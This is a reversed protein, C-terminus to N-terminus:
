GGCAPPVPGGHFMFDVLYVLDGIDVIDVGNVNAEEMCIPQPGGSFMWDSLYTLDSIDAPVAGGSHNVDGRNICCASPLLLTEVLQRASQHEMYWLHFGFLYTEYSLRATKIGIPEGEMLSSGPSSSRFRYVVEADVTPLFTMPGPATNSPWFSTLPGSGFPYRLSDYRLVPLTGSSDEVTVLGFTTDVLPLGNIMFHAIGSFFISDLGFFDRLIFDNAVLHASDGIMPQGVIPKFGGFYVTTGGFLLYKHLAITQAKNEFEMIIDTLDDDIIVLKYHALDRWNIANEPGYKFSSDRASYIDYAYAPGIGGLLSDYFAKITDYQVFQIFGRTVVVVEKDPPDAILVEVMSFESRFGAKNVAEVYYVNGENAMDTFSTVGSDTTAHADMEYYYFYCDGTWISDKPTLEGASLVSMDTEDYFPHYPIPSFIIASDFKYINYHDIDEASTENWSITVPQSTQAYVYPIDFSPASFYLRRQLFVPDGIDGLGTSTQHAVNVFYIKNMEAAIGFDYSSAQVSGAFHNPSSPRLWPAVLGPYPLAAPPVETLYVSYGNVESYVWPDWSVSTADWEPSNVSLGIAPYHPNLLSDAMSDAQSGVLLLDGFDLGALFSDPQYTSVLNNWFNTTDTHINEGTFTTYQIRISSDPPLDFPGISMLFRTDNGNSVNMAQSQDPYMWVSDNSGIAATQVQDYDWEPFSMIYYKNADGMPTGIGGTLFDRFTTDGRRPGFDEFGPAWWNYNTDTANFSTSLFKFAFARTTSTSTYNGTATHPDGDNDIIYAIGENRLSGTLDDAYGLNQTCNGAFCVDADFYFGVYGKEILQNGINTIVM